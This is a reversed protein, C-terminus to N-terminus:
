CKTRFNLHATTNQELIMERIKKRTVYKLLNVDLILM